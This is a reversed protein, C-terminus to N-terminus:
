SRSLGQRPGAEPINIKWAAPSILLAKTHAVKIGSQCNERKLRPKWFFPLSPLWFCVNLEQSFHCFTIKLQFFRDFHHFLKCQFGFIDVTQCISTPVNTVYLSTLNTGTQCCRTPLRVTPVRSTFLLYIFICVCSIQM